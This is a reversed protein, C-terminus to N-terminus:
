KITFVDDLKPFKSYLEIYEDLGVGKLETIYKDWTASVDAGSLVDAWYKERVSERDANYLDNHAKTEDAFEGYVDSTYGNLCTMKLGVASTSFEKFKTVGFPEMFKNFAEPYIIPYYGGIYKAKEDNPIDRPIAASNYAEGAWDFNVGDFGSFFTVWVEPDTMFEEMIRLVRDVIADSAQKGFYHDYGYFSNTYQYAQQKGGAGITPPTILLKAGPNTVIVSYPPRENYAVDMYSSLITQYGSVGATFKQWSTDLDMTIAEPDIVGMNVLQSIHICFEKFEETAYWPVAKGGNNLNGGNSRMGFAGYHGAWAYHLWNGPSTGYTDNVGNGDPDEFTFKYLIDTFEEVTFAQETWYVGDMLEEIPGKPEIGLNEMWDLRFGNTWCFGRTTSTYGTLRALDTDSDPWVSANWVYDGGDRILQAYTPAADEIMKMPVPRILGQDLMDTRGKYIQGFDFIEGTALKLNTQEANTADVQWPILTINYRENIWKEQMSGPQVWSGSSGSTGWVITLHEELPGGAFAENKVPAPTNGRDGCAALLAFAFASALIIAIIKKM